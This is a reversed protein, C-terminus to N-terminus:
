KARRVKRQKPLKDGGKVEVVSSVSRLGRLHTDPTDGAGGRLTILLHTEKYGVLREGDHWRFNKDNIGTAYQIADCIVKSLNSLDPASRLDRFIGDCTIELPLRWGEIRAPKLLWGLEEMWQKAEKRTFRGGVYKYHNVSIM